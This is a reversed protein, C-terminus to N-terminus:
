DYTIDYNANIWATIGGQMSCINHYGMKQLNNAAIVSRMGGRCYLIIETNKDPVVKEIDREIIGKSLHIAGSIYGEDWEETERVDILIVQENTALLNKVTAPDKEIVAPKIESVLNTFGSSHKM